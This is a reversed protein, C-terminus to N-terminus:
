RKGLAFPQKFGTYQLLNRRAHREQRIADDHESRHHLLSDRMLRTSAAIKRFVVTYFSEFIM